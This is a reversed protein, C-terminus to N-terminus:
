PCTGNKLATQDAMLSGAVFGLQPQASELTAQVCFSACPAAACAGGASNYSKYTYYSGITPDSPVLSMHITGCGAATGQFTPVGGVDCLVKSGAPNAGIVGLNLATTNVPYGASAVYSVELAKMLTKVDAVRKNDRSKMRASALGVAALTALLGIIAIVVLLEILTFADRRQLYPM